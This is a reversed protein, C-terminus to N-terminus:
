GWRVQLAQRWHGLVSEDGTVQVVDRGLRNWLLLYLDSAHGAVTCDAGAPDDVVEMAEPAMRVLWARDADTARVGLTRHPEGVPTRGDRAAFGYLLEDIGDAAFRAPYTTFTSTPSEADARHVATEHAQRRAWFVTGSPAALFHYFEAAPDADLLTDVLAAHGTRFWGLLRDDDHPYSDVIASREEAPMRETRQERVHTAAWAHVAGLHRVLNRMQWGPCAPISADLSTAEAVKALLEGDRRLTEVHDRVQTELSDRDMRSM